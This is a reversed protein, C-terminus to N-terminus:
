SDVPLTLRLRKMSSMFLRIGNAHVTSRHPKQGQRVSAVGCRERLRKVSAQWFFCPEPLAQLASVCLRASTTHAPPVLHSRSEPACVYGLLRLCRQLRVSCPKHLSTHNSHDNEAELTNCCFCGYVRLPHSMCVLLILLCKGEQSGGKWTAKLTDTVREM